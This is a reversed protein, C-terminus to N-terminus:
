PEEERNPLFIDWQGEETDSVVLGGTRDAMRKAEGRILTGFGFEPRDPWREVSGVYEIQAIDTYIRSPPVKVTLRDGNQWSVVFKFSKM